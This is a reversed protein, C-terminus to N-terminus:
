LGQQQIFILWGQGVSRNISRSDNPLGLSQPIRGVSVLTTTKTMTTKTTTTTTTTMMMMM